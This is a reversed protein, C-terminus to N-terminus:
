PGTIGCHAHQYALLKVADARGYPALPTTSSYNNARWHAFFILEHSTQTKIEAPTEALFAAKYALTAGVINRIQAPTAQANYHKNKMYGYQTNIRIVDACWKAPSPGGSARHTAFGAIAITALGAVALRAGHSHRMMRQSPM